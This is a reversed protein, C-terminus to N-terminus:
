KLKREAPNKETEGWGKEFHTVLRLNNIIMILKKVAQSNQFVLLDGMLAELPM